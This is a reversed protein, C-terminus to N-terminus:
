EEEGAALSEFSETIFRFANNAGALVDAHSDALDDLKAVFQPWRVTANEASRELYLATAQGALNAQALSVLMKAGMSSGEFVYAHGWQCGVSDAPADHTGHRHAVAGQETSALDDNLLAILEEATAPMGVLDAVADLSSAFRRYAQRMAILYIRYHTVSDFPSLKAVVRDLTEHRNKTESRLMQRLSM